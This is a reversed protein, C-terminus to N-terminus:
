KMTIERMLYSGTIDRMAPYNKVLEDSREEQEDSWKEMFAKYREKSPALDETDAFKIVLLLNFDGSQPLQSGYIAYDEIHGLEKAIENAAMWSDRIGELYADTMNPAVKIATIQYVEKSIDYDKWPELDAMAMSSVSLLVAAAAFRLLKM